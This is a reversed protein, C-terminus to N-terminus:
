TIDQIECPLSMAHKWHLLDRKPFSLLRAKFSPLIIMFKIFTLGSTSAENQKLRTPPVTPPIARLFKDKFCITVRLIYTMVRLLHPGEQVLYRTHFVKMHNTEHLSKTQAPINVPISETKVM